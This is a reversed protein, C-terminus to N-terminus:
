GGLLGTKKDVDAAMTAASVRAVVPGVNQIKEKGVM